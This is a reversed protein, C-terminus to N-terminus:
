GDTTLRSGKRGDGQLGGVRGFGCDAGLGAGGRSRCDWLRWCVGSGGVTRSAEPSHDIAGDGGNEREGAPQQLSRHPVAPRPAHGREPLSWGYASLQSGKPRPAPYKAAIRLIPTTM